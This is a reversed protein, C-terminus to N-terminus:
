IIRYHLNLSDLLSNKFIEHNGILDNLRNIKIPKGSIRIMSYSVKGEPRDLCFLDEELQYGILINQM